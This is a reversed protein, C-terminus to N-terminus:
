ILSYIDFLISLSLLSIMIKFEIGQFFIDSSVGYLVWAISFLACLVLPISNLNMVKKISFLSLSFVFFYAFILLPVAIYGLLGDNFVLILYIVLSVCDALLFKFFISNNFFTKNMKIMRENEHYNWHLLLISFKLHINLFILFNSFLISLKEM